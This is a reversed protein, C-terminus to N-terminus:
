ILLEIIALTGGILINQRVWDIAGRIYPRQDYVWELRINDSALKESNLRNVVAELRDSLDLINADPEPKVGIAIGEKGMHLMAEALKEYGFKVTALDSVRIRQRGTSRIVVNGIDATSKFEGIARIRYARRGVGMIGASININEAELIQILESITLGFAALKEPQVIIHMEKETGGGIFLDAVGPTRELYQRINNELYTRYRYPSLPNDGTTKLVMWIVPSTAAGTATIIPKDVNEPYSPVEDLKNSVRLL